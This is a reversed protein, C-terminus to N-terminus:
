ISPGSSSNSIVKVPKFSVVTLAVTFMSPLIFISYTPNTFTLPKVMSSALARMKPFIDFAYGASFNFLVCNLM